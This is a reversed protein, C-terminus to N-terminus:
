YYESLYFLYVIDQRSNSKLHTHLISNILKYLKRIFAHFM